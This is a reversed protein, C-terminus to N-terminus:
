VSKEYYGGKVFRDLLVMKEGRSPDPQRVGIGEDSLLHTEKQLLLAM